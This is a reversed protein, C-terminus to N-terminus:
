RETVTFGEKDNGRIRYLVTDCFIDTFEKTEYVEYIVFHEVNEKFWELRTM